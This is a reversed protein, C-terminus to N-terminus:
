TSQLIASLVPESEMVVSVERQNGRIGRSVAGKLVPVMKRIQVGPNIRSIM